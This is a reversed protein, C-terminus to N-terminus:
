KLEKKLKVRLVLYAYRYGIYDNATITITDTTSVYIVPIVTVSDQRLIQQLVALREDTFEMKITTDVPMVAVGREDTPAAPISAEINFSDLRITSHFGIPFRNEISIVAEAATIQDVGEIGMEAYTTDMFLTDPATLVITLPTISEGYMKVWSNYWIAGGQPPLGVRASVIVEYPRFNLIDSIYCGIVSTDPHLPSGRAIRGTYSRILEGEDGVANVNIQLDADFGVTNIFMLRLLSSCLNLHEMETPLDLKITEPSTVEMIEEIIRGYLWDINLTDFYVYLRTSSAADIAIPIEPINLEMYFHLRNGETRLYTNDMDFRVSDVPPTFDFEFGRAMEYVYLSCRFPINWESELKLGGCGKSIHLSDVVFPLDTIEVFRDHRLRFATAYGYIYTAVLSDIKLKFIISDDRAINVSQGDTGPSEWSANIQMCRSLKMNEVYITDLVSDHAGIYMYSLILQQPNDPNGLELYISDFPVETYNHILIIIKGTELMISDLVNGVDHQSEVENYFPDIPGYYTSEPLSYPLIEQLTFKINIPKVGTILFDRLNLETSGRRQHLSFSDSFNLSERTVEFYVQLISDDGVRLYDMDEVSIRFSDPEHFIPITLQTELDLKQPRRCTAMYLCGIVMMVYLWLTSHNGKKM